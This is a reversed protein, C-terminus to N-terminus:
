KHSLKVNEAKLFSKIEHMEKELNETKMAINELREIKRQQEKIAEVLVPTIRAYDVSKFGKEDTFVMEPYVKEIEQAIFGIQNKDSFQKDPFEEKRWDYTIGNIKSLNKIPDTITAINKKYRLDSPSIFLAATVDHSFVASGSQHVTFRWSNGIYIGASETGSVANRMGFFSGHSDTTSNISNNFWIGASLGLDNRHRIRIRGNVDILEGANLIPYVNNGIGFGVPGSGTLLAAASGDFFAGSNNDSYGYVGNGNTSRGYVGTGNPSFGAVGIGVNQVDGRVGVGNGFHKGYVGYGINNTSLNEGVVGYNDGSPNTPLAKGYIGRGGSLSQTEAWLGYSTASLNENRIRAIEFPINDIHYNSIYNRWSNAFADWAMIKSKSSNFAIMGSSPVPIATGTSLDNLYQPLIIFKSDILTSQAVVQNLILLTCFLTLLKKM